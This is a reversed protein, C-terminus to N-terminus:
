GVHHVRLLGTLMKNLLFIHSGGTMSKNGEEEREREKERERLVCSSSLRHAHATSSSPVPVPLRRPHRPRRRKPVARRCAPTRRRPGSPAATALSVSATVARSASTTTAFEAKAELQQRRWRDLHHEPHPRYSIASSAPPPTTILVSPLTPTLIPTAAPPPPPLSGTSMLQWRLENVDGLADLRWPQGIPSPALAL